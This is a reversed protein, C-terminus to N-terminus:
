SFEMSTKARLQKQEEIRHSRSGDAHLEPVTMKNALVGRNHLAETEDLTKKRGEMAHSIQAASENIKKKQGEM